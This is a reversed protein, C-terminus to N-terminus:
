ENLIVKSEKGQNSNEFKILYEKGINTGLANKFEKTYENKKVLLVIQKNDVFDPLFKGINQVIDEDLNALPTDMIIPIDFGSINHLSSMFCLGLCLKEGDSLDAPRELQGLKNKVFIEYNEDILIDIFEDEKWIIKPFNERTLKEIKDHINDFLDKTIKELVKQSKKVFEIKNKINEAQISLKDENNQQKKLESLEGNLRQLEKEISGIKRENQQIISLYYEKDKELEQIRESPNSKLKSSINRQEYTLEDLKKEDEIIKRKIEIINDKFTNIKEIIDFIPWIIKM